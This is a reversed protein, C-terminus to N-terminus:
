ASTVQSKVNLKCWYYEIQAAAKVFEDYNIAKRIYSNAGLEYASKLDREETSSSLIIIPIQKYRAHNKIQRLVEIGTIKPLKLDLLIFHPAPLGQDWKSIFAVAEEGDRAIEVTVALGSRGLARKTLDVDMPNDEVLLISYAPQDQNTYTM